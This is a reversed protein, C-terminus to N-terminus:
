IERFVPSTSNVQLIVNVTRTIEGGVGQVTIAYAGPATTGPVTVKFTSGSSYQSQPLTSPNFSYAAGPLNPFVSQVSLNVASSFGSFATVTIQSSNSTGSGAGTINVSINNSSNLSFDPPNSCVGGSCILGPLCQAPSACSAGVAGLCQGGSCSLGSQCQSSSSCSGGAGSVCTGSQCIGSQCQSGANCSSGVSNLPNSENNDSPSSCGPDNMDVLGDGDNDGADSCQPNDSENDDSSNQCGLDNPYDIQGDGDNDAGDACQPSPACNPTVFSGSAVLHSGPDEGSEQPTKVEYTYSANNSAGNWTKSGSYSPYTPCFKETFGGPGSVTLWAPSELGTCSGNGQGVNYDSTWDITVLPHSGQCTPASNSASGCAPASLGLGTAQIWQPNQLSAESARESFIFVGAAILIGTAVIFLSFQTVKQM